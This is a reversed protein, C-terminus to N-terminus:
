PVFGVTSPLSAVFVPHTGLLLQNIIAQGSLGVTDLFEPAVIMTDRLFDIIISVVMTATDTSHHLRSSHSTKLQFGHDVSSAISSAPVVMAIPSGWASRM